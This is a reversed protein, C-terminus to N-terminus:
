GRLVLWGALYVFMSEEEIKKEEKKKKKMNPLIQVQL